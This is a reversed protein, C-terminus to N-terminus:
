PQLGALFDDFHARGDPWPGFGSAATIHGKPGVDILESGWAIAFQRARSQQCYPDDSSSILVTPFPLLEQPIPRFGFGEDPWTYGHTVPWTCAHEVDAASVLFAGAVSNKPLARAAHAVAIVGLSHALLVAPHSTAAVAKLITAVWKDKDPATWSDEEIIRATEIDNAWLSQWHDPECGLWGPIILIDCDSTRM